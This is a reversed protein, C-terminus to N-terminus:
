ENRRLLKKKLRSGYQFFQYKLRGPLTRLTRRLGRSKRLQNGNIIKSYYFKEYIKLIRAYPLADIVGPKHGAWHILKPCSRHQKVDRLLDSEKEKRHIAPIQFDVSIVKKTGNKMEETSFIGQSDDKLLYIPHEPYWYRISAVCIRAFYFDTKCCAVFFSFKM